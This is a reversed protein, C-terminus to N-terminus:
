FGGTALTPHSGVGVGHTRWHTHSRTNYLSSTFSPLLLIVWCRVGVSFAMGFGCIFASVAGIIFSYKLPVLFVYVAIHFFMYSVLFGFLMGLFLLLLM